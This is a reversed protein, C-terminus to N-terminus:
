DEIITGNRHVARGRIYEGSEGYANEFEQDLQGELNYIKGVVRRIGNGRRYDSDDILAHSEGYYDEFPLTQQAVLQGERGYSVLIVKGALRNM